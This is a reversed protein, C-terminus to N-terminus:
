ALIVQQEFRLDAKTVVGAKGYEQFLHKCIMLDKETVELDHRLIIHHSSNERSILEIRNPGYWHIEYGLWITDPLHLLFERLREDLEQPMFVSTHLNLNPLSNTITESFDTAWFFQGTSALVFRDIRWALKLPSLRVHVQNLGIPVIQVRGIVPFSSQLEEFLRTGSFNKVQQLHAAVGASLEASLGKDLSWSKTCVVEALYCLYTMALLGATGTSIQLALWWTGLKTTM